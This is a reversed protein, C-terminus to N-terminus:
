VETRKEPSLKFAPLVSSQKTTTGDTIDGDTRSPQMGSTFRLDSLQVVEKEEWLKTAIRRLNLNALLANSYMQPIISYMCENVTTNPAALRVILGVLALLGTLMGTGVAYAILTRIVTNTKAVSNEM